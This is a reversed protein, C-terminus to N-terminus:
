GVTALILEPQTAGAVQGVAAAVLPSAPLDRGASFERVLNGHLDYRLLGAPGAVYLSDQFRAVEAFVEPSRVSEFNLNQRPSFPRVALALEREARLGQKALKLARSVPWVVVGGLLGAAVIALGSIWWWRRGGLSVM